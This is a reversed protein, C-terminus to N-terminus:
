NQSDGWADPHRRHEDYLVLLERFHQCESDVWNAKQFSCGLRILAERVANHQVAIRQMHLYLSFSYLRQWDEPRLTTPCAVAFRELMLWATHDM